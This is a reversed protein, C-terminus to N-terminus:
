ALRKATREAAFRSIRCALAEATDLEDYDEDIMDIGYQEELAAVLEVLEVSDVDIENWRLAPDFTKAGEVGIADLEERIAFLVGDPTVPDNPTPITSV